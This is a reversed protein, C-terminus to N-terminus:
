RTCSAPAASRCPTGPRRRTTGTSRASEGRASRSRPRASRRGRSGPGADPAPPDARGVRRPGGQSRGAAGDDAHHEQRDGLRRHRDPDGERGDRAPEERARSLDVPVAAGRRRALCRVGALTSRVPGPVVFNIAGLYLPHKASVNFDSAYCEFIPAGLLEAVAAAEAQAGALAISDGLMLMPQAAQLLLRAAEAVAGADVRGRWNTYTTPVIEVEAEGDLTDLPLSLFVPGQPPEMATKFARRMARPVDHAHHIEAAWKCLPQAMEVLPGSLLPEQLVTRSPSHGAYVVM